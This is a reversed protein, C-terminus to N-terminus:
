CIICSELIFKEEFGVMAEGFIQVCIDCITYGCPFTHEFRRQLCILCTTNIKLLIWQRKWYAIDYRRVAASSERRDKTSQCLQILRSEVACVQYDAHSADYAAHYASLLPGAYHSRFVLKLCFGKLNLLSSLGSHTFIINKGHMSPPFADMLISSAIFSQLSDYPFKYKASLGLFNIVHSLFTPSPQWGIRSAAVLDFPRRTTQSIHKLAAEFLANQHYASFSCGNAQRVIHSRSIHRAIEERLKRYRAVPLLHRPPLYVVKIASYIHNLEVGSHELIQFRFDERELYSFTTSSIEDLCVVLVRLRVSDSLNSATGLEAWTDLLTRVGDLGGVDEAFICIVDTFIFLARSLIVDHIQHFMTRAWSLSFTKSFHCTEQPLGLAVQAGEPSRITPDCDAFLYPSNREVSDNDVDLNIATQGQYRRLNNNQHLTRLASDKEKRGLYLTLSPFQESPRGFSDIIRGFRGEDILTSTETVALWRRHNCRNRHMTIVKFLFEISADIASCLASTRCKTFSREVPMAASKPYPHTTQTCCCGCRSKKADLYTLPRDAGRSARKM